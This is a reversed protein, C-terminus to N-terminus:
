YNRRAHDPIDRQQRSPDTKDAEDAPGAPNASNAPNAAGKAKAAAEKLRAKARRTKARTQLGGKEYGADVCPAAEEGGFTWPAVVRMSTHHTFNREYGLGDLGSIVLMPDSVLGVLPLEKSGPPYSPIEVPDNLEMWNKDFPFDFMKDSDTPTFRITYSGPDLGHLYYELDRATKLLNRISYNPAGGPLDGIDGNYKFNGDHADDPIKKEGDQVILRLYEKYHAVLDAANVSDEQKLGRRLLHEFIRNWTHFQIRYLTRDYDQPDHRLAKNMLVASPGNEYNELAACHAAWDDGKRCCMSPCNRNTLSRHDDHSIEESLPATQDPKEPTPTEPKARKQPMTARKRPM